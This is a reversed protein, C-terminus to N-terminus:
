EISVIRFRKKGSKSDQLDYDGTAIVNTVSLVFERGTPNGFKAEKVSIGDGKICDFDVLLAKQEDAQIAAFEVPGITLDWVKRYVNIKLLRLLFEIIKDAIM